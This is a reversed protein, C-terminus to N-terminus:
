PRAGDVLGNCREATALPAVGTGEMPKTGRWPREGRAGIRGQWTPPIAGPPQGLSRGERRGALLSAPKKSSIPIGGCTEGRSGASASVWPGGLPRLWTVARRRKLAATTVRPTRGSPSHRGFGVKGALVTGTFDTRIIPDASRTERHWRLRKFWGLTFGDPGSAGRPREASRWPTQSTLSSNRPVNEETLGRASRFLM